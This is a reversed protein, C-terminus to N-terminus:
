NPTYEHRSYRKNTTVTSNYISAITNNNMDTLKSSINIDPVSVHFFNVDIRGSIDKWIKGFVEPNNTNGWSVDAPDAHFYGWVVLDGRSTFSTGGGGIKGAINGKEVTKIASSTIVDYVKDRPYQAKIVSANRTDIVAANQTNDANYTHRIYRKDTTATNTLISDNSGNSKSSYVDINPVSVHFFNVDIRGSVDYWIKVYLDPNEKNGWSVDDPNAYFYGWIVRDGRSTKSDGGLRWIAEIAGKEVSQITAKSALVDGTESYFLPMTGQLIVDAFLDDEPTTPTTAGEQEPVANDIQPPISQGFEQFEGTNTKGAGWCVISGDSKIGCAHFMGVGVQIFNGQPPIGGHTSPGWCVINGGDKKIACTNYLNTSVQTFSGTPPISQGFEFNKGTNTKGAGWCVISGDNDKIGCTHLAGAALQTFSGMPPISQGYEDYGDNSGALNGRTTKGAGWCVVSKDNKLACSHSGGSTIQTFSGSPSDLEGHDNYGWCVINGNDKLACVHGTGASVQTFIGKPVGTVRYFGDSGWCVINGSSKLGCTYQINASVYTFSGQPPISQGVEPFKGTNTKGAGWCVISGNNKLACSHDYGASVQKYAFVQSPILGIFILCLLKGIILFNNFHNKQTIVYHRLNRTRYKKFGFLM